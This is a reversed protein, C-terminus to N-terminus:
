KVVEGYGGHYNDIYWQAYNRAKQRSEEDDGKIEKIVHGTNKFSVTTKGNSCKVQIKPM